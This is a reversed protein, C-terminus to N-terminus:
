QVLGGGTSYSVASTPVTATRSRPRNLVRERILIPIRQLMDDPAIPQEEFTIATQLVYHNYVECIQVADGTTANRLM